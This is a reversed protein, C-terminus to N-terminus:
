SLIAKLEQMVCEQRLQVFRTPLDLRPCDKRIVIVENAERRFVPWVESSQHTSNVTAGTSPCIIKVCGWPPLNPVSM